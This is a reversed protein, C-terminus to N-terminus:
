KTSVHPTEFNLVKSRQAYALGILTNRTAYTLNLLFRLRGSLAPPSKRRDRGAASCDRLGAAVRYSHGCVVWSLRERRIYRVAPIPAHAAMAMPKGSPRMEAENRARFARVAFQARGAIGFSQLAIAGRRQM